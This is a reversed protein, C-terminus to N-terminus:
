GDANETPRDGSATGDGNQVPAVPVATDAMPMFGKPEVRVRVRLGSSAAYGHLGVSTPDLTRTLMRASGTDELKAVTAALELEIDVASFTYWLPPLVLEGEATNEFAQQRRSSYADLEEQAQVVAGITNALLEGLEVQRNPHTM